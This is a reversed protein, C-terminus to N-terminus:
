ILFVEPCKQYRVVEFVYYSAIFYLLDVARAGWASSRNLVRPQSDRRSHHLEFRELVFSHYSDPQRARVHFGLTLLPLFDFLIIRRKSILDRFM